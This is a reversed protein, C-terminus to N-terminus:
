NWNQLLSLNAKPSSGICQSGFSFHSLSLDSPYRRKAKCFHLCHSEPFSGIMGMNVFWQSDELAVAVM